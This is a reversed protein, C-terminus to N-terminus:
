LVQFVYAGGDTALSTVLQGQQHPCLPSISSLPSRPATRVIADFLTKRGLLLFALVSHPSSCPTRPVLVHKTAKSFGVHLAGPALPMQGQGM